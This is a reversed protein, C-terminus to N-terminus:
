ICILMASKTITIGSTFRPHTENKKENKIQGDNRTTQVEENVYKQKVKTPSIKRCLHLDYLKYYFLFYLPWFVFLYIYRYFAISFVRDVLVFEM